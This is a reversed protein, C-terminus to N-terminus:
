KGWRPDFKKDERTFNFCRVHKWFKSVFTDLIWSNTSPQNESNRDAPIVAIYMECPSPM